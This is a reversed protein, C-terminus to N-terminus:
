PAPRSVSFNYDTKVTADEKSTLSLIVTDSYSATAGGTNVGYAIHTATAPVDLTYSNGKSSSRCVDTGDGYRWCLYEAASSSPKEYIMQTNFMGAIPKWVFQLSTESSGFVHDGFLNAPAAQPEVRARSVAFNYDTRVTSDKQSVIYLDVTDSFSEFKNTGTPVAYGIETASPPVSIKSSGTSYRCYPDNTGSRYCLYEASSSSSKGFDMMTTFPTTIDKWVYQINTEESNFAHPGFLDAPAATIEGSPRTVTFRYDRRVTNDGDSYLYLDVTGSYSQFEDSGVNIAYGIEVASVPITRSSASTNYYCSPDGSAPKYCLYTAASSSSKGFTMSTSMQGEVNAWVYQLNTQDPQFEHDTFINAAPMQISEKPRDVAISWAVVNTPDSDSWIDMRLDPDAFSQYKDSGTNVYFGLEDANAPVSVTEASYSPIKSCVPNGTARKYCVQVDHNERQIRFTMPTNFMGTVSKWVIQGGTEGSAFTHDTFLNQPPMSISSAPRDLAIDWTIKNATDENSWIQLILSTDEFSAYEDSGTNVLYGIETANAPVTREQSYRDSSNSCHPGSTGVMYCAMTSYGSPMIAFTMPTNFVGTVDKWVYQNNTEDSKFTHNAFLNQPPMSISKAPRNVAIDWLMKNSPDENSWIELLLSLDVFEEFENSGTHVQYGIQTANTPVTKVQDSSSAWSSCHPGSTGIWYCVRANYGARKVSFSMPTNFVGTVDKYVGQTNIEDSAFTHDTFLNQSPMAIAASPRDIAIDWRMVNSPDEDSWIEMVLSPDIFEQYKNAGTYVKYGIKVASAPVSRTQDSSSAANSCYSSGNAYQFCTYANYGQRLMKFSMNTNFVGTVDKWVTQYGTEDAAFTHNTFLGQAPMSIAEAPRSLAIDWTMVNEPTEVSWMKMIFSNDSFESYQDKGTNVQFGIETASASGQVSEPGYDAVPSCATYGNAYRFCVKADYDGERLVEFVMSTSFAPNIDKWVTQTNLEGSAFTHDTFLNAAPYVVAKGPRTIVPAYNVVANDAETSTLSFQVPGNVEEYVSKPLQVTYGVEYTGKPVNLETAASSNYGVCSLNSGSTARICVQINDQGSSKSIKLATNIAPDLVKMVVKNNTDGEEFSENGFLNQAPMVLARAPRTVNVNYNVPITDVEDSTISMSLNDNVTAFVNPLQYAYGIAYYSEPMLLEAAAASEAATCYPQSTSFQQRCIRLAPQNAAKTFVMDTNVNQPVAKMVFFEEDDGEERVENPFLSAPPLMPEMAPRKVNINYDVRNSWGDRATLHLKVNRDVPYFKNGLDIQYGISYWSQSIAVDFDGADGMGSCQKAAGASTKYCLAVGPQGSAKHLVLDINVSSGMVELVEYEDETGEALMQDEFFTRDPMTANMRFRSVGVSYAQIDEPVDLSGIRLSIDRVIEVETDDDLYIRYGVAYWNNNDDNIQFASFGEGSCTVAGTASTKYCLEVDTQGSAKWLSLKTNTAPDLTAMYLQKGTTGAAYPQNPFFDPGPMITELAPRVLRPRYTVKSSPVDQSVLDFNVTKDVDDWDSAPLQVRYGVAYWSRNKDVIELAATSGQGQCIVSGSKSQQYCIGIDTQGSYKVMSLQTDIAPDLVAMITKEGTTKVPYTLDAFLDAAPMVPQQIARKLSIRYNRSQSQSSKSTIVLNLVKDYGDFKNDPLKIRYGIKFTEPTIDYSQGTTEASTGQCSVASTATEQICLRVDFGTAAVEYSMDSNAAGNLAAMIMREGSEGEAYTQTSAFLNTPPLEVSREVRTITPSWSKKVSPYPKSRLEIQATRQWKQFVDDGFELAYGIAYHSKDVPMKTDSAQCIIEGGSVAQTCLKMDPGPNLAVLEIDSSFSGSLPRVFNFWGTMGEPFSSNLYSMNTSFTVDPKPRDTKVTFSRRQSPYDLMRLDFSSTQTDAVYPDDPLRVAFGIAHANPAVKLTKEANASAEDTCRTAGGAVDQACLLINESATAYLELDTTMNGTLPEMVRQWGTEAKTFFHDSFSVTPSFVVPAPERYIKFTQGVYLSSDYASRLTVNVTEDVEEALDTPLVVRYGIFEWDPDLTIQAGVGAASDGCVIKGTTTQRYCPHVPQKTGSIVYDTKTTFNGEFPIIREQAGSTKVAFDADPLKMSADPEWLVPMADRRVTVTYDRGLAEDYTSELRFTLTWNVDTHIDDPLVVAFGAAYMRPPLEGSEVDPWEPHAFQRASETSDVSCVPDSVNTKQFCPSIPFGSTPMVMQGQTTVNGTIQKIVLQRGSTGPDFVIEGFETSPMYAATNSERSANVSVDYNLEADYSSVVQFVVQNIWDEHIDGPLEIRYGVSASGQPVDFEVQGFQADTSCTPLTGKTAAYCMRLAYTTQPAVMTLGTTIEGEIPVMVHQVGFLGAAFVKDRFGLNPDFKVPVAPRTARSSMPAAFATSEASGLTVDLPLDQEIHIDDSLYPRMGIAYSGLPVRLSKAPAQQMPSAQNSQSMAMPSYSQAGPAPAAGGGGAAPTVGCVPQSGATAQYCPDTYESGSTVTLLLDSNFFGSVPTMQPEQWGTAMEGYTVPEITMKAMDPEFIVETAPRSVNVTYTEYLSPDKSHRLDFTVTKNVAQFENDGMDVAYGIFPADMPVDLQMELDDAAGSCVAESGAQVCVKSGPQPASIVLVLDSNFDGTLAVMDQQEGTDSEAFVKDEFTVTPNFVPVFEPRYNSVSVTEVFDPYDISIVEFGIQRTFEPLVDDPLVTAYGIAYAGAPVTYAVDQVSVDHSCKPTDGTGDIYCFALGEEGQPARVMLDSPYDQDLPLMTYQIGSAGAEFTVDQFNLTHFAPAESSPRSVTIDWTIQDNERDFPSALTISLPWSVVERVDNPLHLQYGIAHTDTPVSAWSMEAQSLGCKSESTQKDQTCIAFEGGDAGPTIEFELDDRDFQGKLEEMLSYEGITGAPLKLDMFAIEPEFINPVAERYVHINWTKNNQPNDISGLTISVPQAMEEREDALPLVEYGVGTVGPPFTFASNLGRMTACTIQSNDVEYCAAVSDPRDTSTLIEDLGKVDFIRVPLIVRRPTVESINLYLDVFGEKDFGKKASEGFGKGECHEYYKGTGGGLGNASQCLSTDTKQSLALIAGISVISVLGLIIAYEVITSGRRTALSLHNLIVAFLKSM